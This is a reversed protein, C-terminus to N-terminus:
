DKSTCLKNNNTIMRYLTFFSLYKVGQFIRVKYKQYITHYTLRHLRYDRGSQMSCLDNIACNAIDTNKDNLINKKVGVKYKYTKLIVQRKELLARNICVGLM